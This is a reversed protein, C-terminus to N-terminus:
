KIPHLATGESGTYTVIATGSLNLKVLNPLDERITRFDRADITGTVTLDTVGTLPAPLSTKLSGAELNNVVTQAKGLLCFSLALLVLLIKKKM